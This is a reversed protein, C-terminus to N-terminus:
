LSFEIMENLNYCDSYEFISFPYVQSPILKAFTHPSPPFSFFVSFILLSPTLLFFISQAFFLM